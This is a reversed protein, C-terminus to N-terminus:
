LIPWFIKRYMKIRKRCDWKLKFPVFNFLSVNRLLNIRFLGTTQRLFILSLPFFVGFRGLIQIPPGFFLCRLTKRAFYLANYFALPSNKKYTVFSLYMEGETVFIRWGVARLLELIQFLYKVKWFEVTNHM